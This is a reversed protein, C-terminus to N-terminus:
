KVAKLTTSQFFRNRHNVLRNNMESLVKQIEDAKSKWYDQAIALCRSCFVEQPPPNSFSQAEKVSAEAEEDSMKSGCGDCSFLIKYM